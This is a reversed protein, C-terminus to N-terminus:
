NLNIYLGLVETRIEEYQPLSSLYIDTPDVMDMNIEIKIQQLFLLYM